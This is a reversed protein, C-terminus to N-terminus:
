ERVTGLAATKSVFWEGPSLGTLLKALPRACQTLSFASSGEIRILRGAGKGGRLFGEIRILRGAGM